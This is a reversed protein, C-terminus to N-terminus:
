ISERRRERLIVECFFSPGSDIANAGEDGEGM